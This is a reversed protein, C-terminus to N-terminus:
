ARTERCAPCTLASADRRGDQAAAAGPGATFAGKSVLEREAGKGELLANLVVTTAHALVADSPM